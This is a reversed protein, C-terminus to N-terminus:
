TQEHQTAEDALLKLAHALAPQLVAATSSM